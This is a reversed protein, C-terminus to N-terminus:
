PLLTIVPSNTQAGGTGSTVVQLQLQGAPPPSTPAPVVPTITVTFSQTNAGCGSDPYSFPLNVPTNVTFGNVGSQVLSVTSGKALAQGNADSVTFTVSNGSGVTLTNGAGFATGPTVGIIAGSTSLEVCIQKGIEISPGGCSVTATGKCGFGFFKGTPGNRLGDANFDHFFDGSIYHGLEAGDLYVEGIDDVSPNTPEVFSDVTTGSVFKTFVDNHDFVGDGDADDFSEEGVTYALIEVRGPLHLGDNANPLGSSTWTVTCNGNLTLCQGTIQGSNAVFAVATNNLVPNNFRDSLQVTIVDTIGLTDAANGATLNASAMAFNNETPIGTTITLANSLATKVGSPTNVTALVSVSYHETGSVVFTSVQGNAATTGTTTTLTADGTSPVLSFTVNVGGVGTNSADNVQFTVQANTVAGAGQLAIVTGATTAPLVFDISNPIGPPTNNNGGGGGKSGSGSTTTGTLSGGGGCSALTAMLLAVGLGKIIGNM